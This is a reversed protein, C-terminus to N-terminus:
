EVTVSKALSRPKDPDLGRGVSLHYALLQLPLIFTLPSLFEGTRPVPLLLDAHEGVEGDGEEAVAIMWAGRARMEELNSMLKKKAEGPVAVAVVPTGKELLALTGHKLEGGALAEAHLYSIEKVKLAGEMAIPYGLGRGVLYLHEKGLMKGALAKTRALSSRLTRGMLNPSGLLSSFLERKETRGLKGSKEGLELSLLLLHAVQSTFTKTAVVSVEPGARIYCVLQSERTVSSGVVNTLCAVKGGFARATRVAKLVDATEGSQTIALVATRGDGGCSEGFESAVVAEVQLGALKALLYKGVVAAHYSTGCGVFYLREARLLFRSLKEVEEEAGRLTEGVAWPQELIEKLTFHPYGGKEAMEATWRVTMPKRTINRRSPLHRISLSSPTLVVMEEEQLPVVRRTFPLLAPIDSALFSEGNGKGVLLPSSRRVGILKEPERAYLVAIALSGRLEGVAREVSRELGEGRRLFHSILHPIVETDTESAFRHGKRELAKRLELYNEIIGNHVVAVEGSDDLHPHANRRTPSGHTAWRVHGVGVKGPLSSLELRREIEELKGADKRVWLKGELTAMGASDYGRYELRRLGELLLPAARRAGVYGIIGCM